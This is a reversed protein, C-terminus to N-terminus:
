AKGAAGFVDEDRFNGEAALFEGSAEFSLHFLAPRVADDDACFAGIVSSGEAFPELFASVDVDAGSDQAEDLSAALWAGFVGDKSGCQSGCGDFCEKISFCGGEDTHPFAFDSFYGVFICFM